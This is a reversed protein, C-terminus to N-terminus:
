FENSSNIKTAQRAYTAVRRYTFSANKMLKIAKNPTIGKFSRLM